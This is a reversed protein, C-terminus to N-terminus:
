DLAAIGIAQAKAWTQHVANPPIEQFDTHLGRKDLDPGAVFGSIFNNQQAVTQALGIQGL